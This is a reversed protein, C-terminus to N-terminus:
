KHDSLNENMFVELETLLNEQIRGYPLEPPIKGAIKSMMKASIIAADFPSFGKLLLCGIITGLICGTGPLKNIKSAPMEVLEHRKGQTIRITRGTTVLVTNYELTFIEEPKGHLLTSIESLNGKIVSIGKNKILESALDRRSSSLSIGVPDLVIPKGTREYVPITKRIAMLKDPNPMGLNLVLGSSMSAIEHADLSSNGMIPSLGMLETVQAQLNSAVENTIHHLVQIKKSEV